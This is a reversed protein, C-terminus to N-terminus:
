GRTVRRPPRLAWADGYGFTNFPDENVGDPVVEDESEDTLTCESEDEWEDTFPGHCRPPSKPL